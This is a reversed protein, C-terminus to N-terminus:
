TFVIRVNVASAVFLSYKNIRLDVEESEGDDNSLWSDDVWGPFLELFESIQKSVQVTDEFDITGM